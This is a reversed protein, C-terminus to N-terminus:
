VRGALDSKKMYESGSAVDQAGARYDSSGGIRPVSKVPLM